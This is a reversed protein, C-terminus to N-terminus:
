LWLSVSVSVSSHKLTEQPPVPWCHVAVPTPGRPAASKPIAYARKSSTAMLRVMSSGSSVCTQSISEQLVCVSSQTCLSGPFLLLSGVLSQGLSAWSHVATELLPTSQHHGAAPNPVTLIAPCAHSRKFSTATIKMVKVMTQYWTFLLSLICSWGDVSFQILTKSLMAGGMLVFGLKGKLWDRGDPLTWLGRIRRWWLASRSFVM